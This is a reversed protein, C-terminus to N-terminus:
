HLRTAALSGWVFGRVCEALLRARVVASRGVAADFALGCPVVSKSSLCGPVCLFAVGVDVM